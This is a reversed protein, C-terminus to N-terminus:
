FDSPISRRQPTWSQARWRQNLAVVGAPAFWIDLLGMRKRRLVQANTTAVANLKVAHESLAVVDGVLAIAGPDADASWDGANL